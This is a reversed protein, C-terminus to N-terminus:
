GRVMVAESARTAAAIFARNEAPTGVSVRLCGALGPLHDQRRVLVGESLLATFFAEADGVRFLLFNTQSPYVTLPLGQLEAHLWERERKAELARAAVYEPHALVTLGTAVQLASVSFPLLLKQVQEALDPSTLTYGLRVGGLGFAKSFTRLSAANPYREVLPLLDLDAFQHYADDLVVTWTPSAAELLAAVENQPFANGTPAAPNALFFVGPGRELERRLQPLPLGFDPELALETLPAGLLRAQEAYVAFTPRVSLVRQAIGCAAVFAQILVNSGSAVVVGREDWGHYRAVAARLSEAALESYRNWPLTQLKSWVETKLEPPLDYPSENQDLKIRASRATFHYARAARVEPRVSM